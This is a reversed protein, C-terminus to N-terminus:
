KQARERAAQRFGGALLWTHFADALPGLLPLSMYRRYARPFHDSLM